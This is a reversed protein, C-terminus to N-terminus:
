WYKMHPQIYNEGPRSTVCPQFWSNGINGQATGTAMKGVWAGMVSEGQIVSYGVAKDHVRGLAVPGGYCRSYAGVRREIYVVKSVQGMRVPVHLTGSM